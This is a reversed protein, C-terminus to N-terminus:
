GVLDDEELSTKGGLRWPAFSSGAILPSRQAKAGKRSLEGECIYKRAFSIAGSNTSKWTVNKTVRGNNRGTEKIFEITKSPVHRSCSADPNFDRTGSHEKYERKEKKGRDRHDEV